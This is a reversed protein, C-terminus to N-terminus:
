GGEALARVLEVVRRRLRAGKIAGFLKLLEVGEPTALLQDFESRPESHKRAGGLGDFFQAAPVGLAAGIEFLRSAAIRNVGKECKQVQQFTIGLLEALWKAKRVHRSHLFTGETLKRSIM